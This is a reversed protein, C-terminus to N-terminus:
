PLLSPFDRYSYNQDQKPFRKNLLDNVTATGTITTGTMAVEKLLFEIPGYAPESLDDSVYERYIVKIAERVMKANEILPWLERTVNDISVKCQPPLGERVEPPDARFPCAIFTVMEGPDYVADAEIGFLMDNLAGTVVRAPQDFTSHQLELTFYVLQGPKVSARAEAMAEEITAM